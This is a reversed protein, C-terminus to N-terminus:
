FSLLLDHLIEIFSVVTKREVASERAVSSVNLQAGHSFSVAELFRSFGGVNRVLGEQNVEERVYLAAYSRLVDIPDSATWILPITGMSIARDLNFRADLECATFPHLARNVARGGLLDQGGRRLKRASSGTLVFRYGSDEILKHVVTLVDPARQVEDIVVTSGPDVATVIDELREPFGALERAVEPDLLDIRLSEPYLTQLLTTKGTGRPGFLFYSSPPPSFRREVSEATKDLM